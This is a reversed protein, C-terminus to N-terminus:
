HGVGSGVRFLEHLQPDSSDKITFTFSLEARSSTKKVQGLAYAAKLLEVMRRLNESESAEDINGTNNSTSTM